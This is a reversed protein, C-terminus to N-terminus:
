RGIHLVRVDPVGQLVEGDHTRQSRQEIGVVVHEAIPPEQAKFGLIKHLEVVLRYDGHQQIKEPADLLPKVTRGRQNQEVLCPRIQLM